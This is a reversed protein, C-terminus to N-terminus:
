KIGIMMSDGDTINIRRSFKIGAGAFWEKIERDTFTDGGKTGVLMNLSFLAGRVPKLRSEDMVQDKIIIKGGKNLSAACKKVLRANERYSNSHVIASLFVMDFGKPLQDTNYDGAATNIRGTLKEKRVYKRTIPIVNPLDFVTATLDKEKRVFAMSFVGSGGGIDLVSRVGRTPIRSIYADANYRARYHMADIFSNLWENDRDNVQEPRDM